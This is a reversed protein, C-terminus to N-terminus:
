CAVPLLHTITKLLLKPGDLGRIVQDTYELPEDPEDPEITVVVIKAEPWLTRAVAAARQREEGTLTHCLVVADFGRGDLLSPMEDVGSVCVTEFRTVLIM